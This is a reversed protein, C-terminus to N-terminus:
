GQVSCFSLATPLNARQQVNLKRYVRTLHQEVTSVTIYLRGAIERNTHGQAALAAVRREADSLASIGPAREPSGAAVAVPETHEQLTSLGALLPEARCEKALHWARRVVMRARGADGLSRHAHGLDVLARALELRDGREQLLHVAEKLLAPRQRPERTAALLRLSAGHGRTRAGGLLALQEEVLERAEARRNLRLLVEAIGTRWPALAPVDVGWQAMLEGCTRFDALASHLRDTALLHRGRAYLFRPAHVTQSMAEPVAHDLLAEAEDRAGMASSALLLTALPAGVRVGWAEPRKTRLAEAAARRAAPLDGRLLAIDAQVGLLVARMADGGSGTGREGCERLLAACWPAALDPRDRLLLVTLAADIAEPPTGDLRCRELIETAEDTAREGGGGALVDGLLRGARPWPDDCAAPTPGDAAAAPLPAPLEDALAPYTVRLWTRFAHLEARADADLASTAGALVALAKRADEVRGYSLLYKTGALATGFPAHGEHLARTLWSLYRGAAQPDDWWELRAFMMTIAAGQQEPFSWYALELYQVAEDVRDAALARDAAERLVAMAWTGDARGAALLLGAVEAADAGDRHLLEAARLRTGAREEAPISDLVASRARPHRFGDADLVGTVRLIRLCRATAATDTGLLRAILKPAPPPGLVALTRAVALVDPGASHLCALVAEGFAEGGHPRGDGGPHALADEILGRALLPNGGSLRAIEAAFGDTAPLGPHQAALAAVGAPSLPSLRVRRSNPQRRLESAFAADTPRAGASETVVVLVGASRVRRVLFSLCRLSLPDAFQVDDVAIVLPASTRALDLLVRCADDIVRAHGSTTVGPGAPEPARTPGAAPLPSELPEGEAPAAHLLQDIVGFPIPQEERSGTASLVLAGSETAVDTFAYLLASKGSATPGSVVAIAGRGRAAESFAERLAGLEHDREVLGM